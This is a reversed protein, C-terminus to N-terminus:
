SKFDFYNKGNKMDGKQKLHVKAKKISAQLQTEAIAL